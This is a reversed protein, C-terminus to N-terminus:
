QEHIDGNEMFENLLQRVTYLKMIDGPHPKHLMIKKGDKRSLLSSKVRIYKRKSERCIWISIGANESRLLYLRKPM